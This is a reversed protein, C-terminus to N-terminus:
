FISAGDNQAISDISRHRIYITTSKIFVSFMLHSASDSLDIKAASFESSRSRGCIRKGDSIQTKNLWDRFYHAIANVSLM